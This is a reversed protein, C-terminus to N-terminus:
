RRSRDEVDEMMDFVRADELDEGGVVVFLVELKNLDTTSIVGVKRSFGSWEDAVQFVTGVPFGKPFLRGQGSTILTDGPLVDEQKGIYELRFLNGREWELIGMIRSRKDICSVSISKNNLLLVRSSHLFVQTVRGVIGRYGVVAMGVRVGDTDGRDITVANHFRNSSRAVVECPVLNFAPNERLGILRRLREREDRYQLLREVEYGLDAVRARLSDNEAELMAISALRREVHTVPYLLVDSIERAATVVSENSRTLLVISASVAVALITKDLHKDFLFSLFQM